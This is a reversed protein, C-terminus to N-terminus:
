GPPDLPLLRHRHGLAAPRPAQAGAGGRAARRPDPLATEVALVGVGVGAADPAPGDGDCIPQGLHSPIPPRSHGLLRDTQGGRSGMEHPEEALEVRGVGPHNWLFGYGRSSLVFPISVETNRQVLDIVTGKQDLLGHQHQGLGYVREDAPADFLVESQHVDGGVPIYRRQPLPPSTPNTSPLSSVDMLPALFRLRGSGSMEAVLEGNQVRALEESVEVTAARNTM